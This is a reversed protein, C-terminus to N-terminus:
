SPDEHREHILEDVASRGPSFNAGAGMLRKSLVCRDPVVRLLIEDPQDGAAWDFSYGPKIGFQKALQAPVSIM